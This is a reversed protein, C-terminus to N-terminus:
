RTPQIASPRFPPEFCHAMVKPPFFLQFSNQRGRMDFEGRVHKVYNFLRAEICFASPLLKSFAISACPSNETHIFTTIEIVM